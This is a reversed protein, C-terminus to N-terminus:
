STKNCTETVNVVRGSKETFSTKMTKRTDSVKNYVEPAYSAIDPSMTQIVYTYTKQATTPMPATAVAFQGGDGTTIRIWKKSGNDWTYKTQSHVERTIWSAPHITDNRVVWYGSPDMSYVETTTFPGPRRSSLDTCTWTGVLFKMTSLDPKAPTPVPTGEVKAGQAYAAAGLAGLLAAVLFFCRISHNLTNDEM